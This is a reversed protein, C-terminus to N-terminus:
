LILYRKVFCFSDIIKRVEHSYFILPYRKELAFHIDKENNRILITLAVMEKLFIFLSAIGAKIEPTESGIRDMVSVAMTPFISVFAVSDKAATPITPAKIDMSIQTKPCVLLAIDDITECYKPALLNSSTFFRGAWAM